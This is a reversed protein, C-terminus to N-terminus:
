FFDMKYKYIPNARNTKEVMTCLSSFIAAGKGNKTMFHSKQFRFKFIIGDSYLSMSYTMKFIKFLDKFHRVTRRQVGM